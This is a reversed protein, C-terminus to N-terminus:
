SGRIFSFKTLSQKSAPKTFIDSVNSESPVYFLEVNGNQIESRIYHYRIDIHKSRQHHVPNKALAIAGQNDAYLLVPQERCGQMDVFLQSLFKAEQIAFTLSVYEAECSSLAVISQKKSKWSVLPGKSNLQYCFGSISRRDSSAGWDSDCHGIVKLDEDSKSFKLDYHLTGKLYKLVYKAFNLDAKSPRSMFQSLKTVAYCIDPRTGMMLYILSGIIERYLKADTLDKSDFFIENNISPDCPVSKPKCDSMKFKNLIRELFKWQNMRICDKDFIFEIGLFWSLIGLDKMKFRNCLSMKVDHLAKDCNTAIMLDDVWIIIIIKVNDVFKTYVCPDAFSQEFDNSLLFNHLLNNWNRGSQKLGYLSKKLKCFLKENNEGSKVFGEPQAVYIDCDIEANLYATKVDMQHIMYNYQVACQMLMRVSTIRATPSFTEQYDIDQIQSYGKAVYRAKYKEENNPGLKVTYVWRGGVPSRGEPLPTLEYTDNEELARIEEKMANKWQTSDPSSVAEDYTRPIDTIRYCYDITCRAMSSLDGDTDYDKLYDPKRRDRRPYRGSSSEENPEDMEQSQDQSPKKKGEKSAGVDPIQLVPVAPSTPRYVPVPYESIPECIKKEELFKETFKVCRIKKVDNEEPYYVLYAPSETDYGLFIGQQSRADLKKKNQVYGYCVTGFVHMNSLNPKLSTMMEYPTKGTRSNYCRNRIYASAKVAYTWLSKPLKAELLLCRAMDFISRWSREVTGNQHPSYPASFEHKICNKILLTRFDQSTFETGNDTRFRKVSGYPSTDALFKETAKVADSKCKLLYLVILGSYDDVFSIVYRFGGRAVPDIPGSLDCHVLQLQQTARIDAERNRFQCMKGKACIDCDVNGKDSIKMGDVVDPLKLLDKVNLHGLIRHWEYVTQSNRKPADVNNIYYLKGKKEIDFITGDKAKLKAYNPTFLVSAGNETAAHVSFIDQKYSPVCLVNGLSVNQSSGIEDHLVVNASGKGKVIGNTKSGDALEIFHNSSNFDKDFCKFKDIDNIIHSTAGTDVLLCHANVDCYDPRNPSNPKDRSNPMMLFDDQATFAFSHSIDDDSSVKDNVSKVSNPMPSFKKRCNESSHSRSKHYDCWQQKPRDPCDPKKHGIKGCSYCKIPGVNASHRRSDTSSVKMVNDESTQQSRETEEFSRLATKFERFSVTTEKQTIVTSFTKFCQPLGKLVMAILLSDSITEGAIKLSNAATEARIVYDTVNEEESKKLSTLETYLALIRPKSSGLYHSRLIEIAKRGNDKADRMILSLSRDDLYQVLEAYVDGNEDASPTDTGTVVDLLKKLRLHGFFKVEWLEYKAEDGDFYLRRGPGMVQEATSTM